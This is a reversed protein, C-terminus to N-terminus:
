LRVKCLLEFPVDELDHAALVLFAEGHLLSDQDRSTDPQQHARSISAEPSIASTFSLAPSLSDPAADNGILQGHEVEFDGLM